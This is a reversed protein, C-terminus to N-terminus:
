KRDIVYTKAIKDHLSQKKPDYMATLIPIAPSLVIPLTSIFFRLLAVKTNIATYDTRLIKLGMIMKGFTANFKGPIFVFYILTLIFFVSIYIALFTSVTGKVNIGLRLVISAVPIVLHSSIYGILIIMLLDVLSAGIRHLVPAYIVNDDSIDKDSGGNQLEKRKVVYTKAIKDHLAQRKSDFNATLYGIFFTFPPYLLVMLSLSRILAIKYNISSYDDRVIRSGMIMKGFSVGYKGPILIFNIIFLALFNISVWFGAAADAMEKTKFSIVELQVLPFLCLSLLFFILPILLFDSCIGVIRKWLRTYHIKEIVSGTINKTMAAQL